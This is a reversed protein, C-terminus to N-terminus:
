KLKVRQPYIAYLAYLATFVYSQLYKIAMNTRSPPSSNLVMRLLEDCNSCFPAYRRLYNMAIRVSRRMDSCTTRRVEFLVACVPALIEAINSCFPAYRRLYNPAIRVTRRMDACTTRRLEFLVTCIPALLETGNWCFPSFRRFEVWDLM